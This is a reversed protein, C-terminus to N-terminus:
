LDDFIDLQTISEIEWKFNNAKRNIEHIKWKLAFIAMVSWWPSSCIESIHTLKQNRLDNFMLNVEGIYEPSCNYSVINM